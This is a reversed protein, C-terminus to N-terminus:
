GVLESFRYYQHLLDRMAASREPGLVADVQGPVGQPILGSGPLAQRPENSSEPPKCIEPHKRRIHSALGRRYCRFNCGPIQCTVKHRPRCDLM